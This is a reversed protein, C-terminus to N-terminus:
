EEGRPCPRAITRGRTLCLRQDRVVGVRRVTFRRVRGNFGPATIQLEIRTGPPLVRKRFLSTLSVNGARSPRKTRRTFPCRKAYRKTTKCTVQVRHDRPLNRVVLRSVRRGRSTPKSFRLTLGYEVFPVPEDFGDCNQDIRDGPLDRAGPHIAADADNCDFGSVAGDGDADVPVPVDGRRAYECGAVQDAADVQADDDASPGCDVVDPEGDFADISDDDGNGLLVDSGPGGVIVDRLDGGVLVDNGGAGFITNLGAGGIITNPGDDGSLVDNSAGGIVDEIAVLADNEGPAGDDGPTALSITLPESATREDYTATDRGPGGDILPDSGHGGRLVDDGDGGHLIDSGAGADIRDNGPGADFVEDATTGTLVDNGAGTAVRRFSALTDAVGGVTATGSALDVNVALASSVYDVLNDGPGGDLLDGGGGGRLTDNGEGGFLADAAASGAIVDDGRSGELVEIGTKSVGGAVDVTTASKTLGLGSAVLDFSLRDVDGADGDAPQGLVTPKLVDSGPGGYLPGAGSLADNGGEGRLTVSPSASAAVDSGDGLQLDGSVTSSTITYRDDGPDPTAHAIAGVNGAITVEDSGAGTSLSLTGISAPAPAADVNVIDNGAGGVVVLETTVLGSVGIELIAGELRLHATMLSEDCTTTGGASSCGPVLASDIVSAAPSFEVKGATRRVQLALTRGVATPSAAVGAGDPALAYPPAVAQASASAPAAVLAIAALAGSLARRRARTVPM